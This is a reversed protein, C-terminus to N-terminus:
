LCVALRAAAFSCLISGTEISIPEGDDLM